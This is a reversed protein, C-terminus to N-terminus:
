KTAPAAPENMHQDMRQRLKGMRGRLSDFEKRSQADSMAPRDAFGAMRSLMSSMEKMSKALQKHKAPTMDAKAMQERMRTMDQSMDQMIDSMERYRAMDQTKEYGPGSQAALPQTTALGATLAAVAIASFVTPKM